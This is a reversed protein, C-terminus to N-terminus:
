CDNSNRLPRSLCRSYAGIAQAGDRRDCGLMLCAMASQRPDMTIKYPTDVFTTCSADCM